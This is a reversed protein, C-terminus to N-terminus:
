VNHKSQDSVCINLFSAHIMSATVRTGNRRPVPNARM